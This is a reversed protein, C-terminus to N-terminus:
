VRFRRTPQEKEDVDLCCRPTAKPHSASEEAFSRIPRSSRRKSRRDPCWTNARSWLPRSGRPCRRDTPRVTYGHERAARRTSGRVVANRYARDTRMANWADCCSIIRAELPIADGALGDPYGSGDWREHHARVIRGVETMFGGVRDLMKQGEITHTQMIAWEDPNLKGPKNIIQNPIAIKGIDHLLAGFELNRRREADLRLKLGVDMALDVVSRSHEGTYGDDAELVDGLVLATGRYPNNLELLGSLRHSRERAFVTLLGPLPILAVLAEPSSDISNAVLLGVGSLAADISYVWTEKLQSTVPADRAILVRSVSVAFDVAFQAGLAAILLAPGASRPAVGAFAFVLVPGVSFWANGAMGILRSARVQGRLVPAIRALMFALAVAIPVIALPLAFLLPIFALQPPVAYGFPTDIRVLTAVVLAGICALPPGIAFAHPPCILWVAVTAAVLGAAVLPEVVVERLNMARGLRGLTDALFEQEEVTPELSM